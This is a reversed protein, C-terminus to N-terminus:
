EEVRQLYIQEGTFHRVLHEGAQPGVTLLTDARYGSVSLTLYGIDKTHAITFYGSSDTYAQIDADRDKVLVGPLPTKSQADLVYGTYDDNANQVGPHANMYYLGGVVVVAVLIIAIVIYTIYKM